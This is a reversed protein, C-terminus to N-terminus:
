PAIMHGGSAPVPPGGALVPRGDPKKVYDRWKISSVLRSSPSMVMSVTVSRSPSRTMPSGSVMNLFVTVRRRSSPRTLRRTSRESTPKRSLEPRPASTRASVRDCFSPPWALSSLAPGCTRLSRWIVLSSETNSIWSRGPPRPRSSRALTSGGPDRGRAFSVTASSGSSGSSSTPRRRPRFRRARRAPGRRSGRASRRTPRGNSRRSPPRRRPAARPERCRGDGTGTCRRRPRLCRCSGAATRGRALGPEDVVEDAIALGDDSM